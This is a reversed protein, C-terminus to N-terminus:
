RNKEFLIWCMLFIMIWISLLNPIDFCWLLETMNSKPTRSFFDWLGLFYQWLSVWLLLLSCIVKIFKPKIPKVKEFILLPLLVAAGMIVVIDLLGWIGFNTVYFVAKYPQALFVYLCILLILVKVYTKM